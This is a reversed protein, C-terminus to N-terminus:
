NGATSIMWVVECSGTYTTTADADIDTATVVGVNFFMDAATGHGDLVTAANSKGFKVAAAAVNIVTSSVLTTAQLIDQQTTVLTGTSQTVSGLGFSLNVGGNLTTLIASTTTPTVTGSASLVTVVGTPFDYIKAGAGVTADALTLPLATFTFTTRHIGGFMSESVAVTGGNSAVTGAGSSGGMFPEPSGTLNIYAIGSVVGIGCGKSKKKIQSTSNRVAIYTANNAVVNPFQNLSSM